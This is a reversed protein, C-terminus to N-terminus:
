FSETVGQWHPAFQFCPSTSEVPHFSHATQFCAKAAHWRQAGQSSHEETTGPLHTNQKLKTQVSQPWIHLLLSVFFYIFLFFHFFGYFDGAMLTWQYCIKKTVRSTLASVAPMSSLVFIIQREEFSHNASPRSRQQKQTTLLKYNQCKVCDSSEFTKTWM